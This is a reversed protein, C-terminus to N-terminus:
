RVPASCRSAANSVIFAKAYDAAGSPAARPWIAPTATDTAANAMRHPTLLLQAQFMM